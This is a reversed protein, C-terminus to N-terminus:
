LYYANVYFIDVSEFEGTKPDHFYLAPFWYNSNDGIIMSNSCNSKMLDEGTSGFNFNSGGMISHVHPAVQNPYIIPDVRGRTLATNTFRLVAFTREDQAASAAAILAALATSAAAFKM